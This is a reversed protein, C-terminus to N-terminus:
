TKKFNGIKLKQLAALIREGCPLAEIDEREVAGVLLAFFVYFIVGLAAGFLFGIRESGFFRETALYGAFSVSIMM